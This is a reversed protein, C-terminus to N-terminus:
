YSPLLDLRRRGDGAAADPSRIFPAEGRALISAHDRHDFPPGELHHVRRKINV